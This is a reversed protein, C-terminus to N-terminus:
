LLEVFSKKSLLSTLFNLSLRTCVGLEFLLSSALEQLCDTSPLWGLVSRDAGHKLSLKLKHKWYIARLLLDTTWPSTVVSLLNLSGLLKASVGSQPFCVQLTCKLNVLLHYRLVTLKSELKETLKSELETVESFEAVSHATNMKNLNKLERGM